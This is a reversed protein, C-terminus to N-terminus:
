SETASATRMASMMPSAGSIPNITPALPTTKWERSGASTPRSMRSSPEISGRQNSFRDPVTSTISVRSVATVWRTATVGKNTRSVPAGVRKATTLIPVDAKSRIFSLNATSTPSTDNIPTASVESMMKKAM